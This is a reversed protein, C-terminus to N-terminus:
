SICVQLRVIQLSHASYSKLLPAQSMGAYAQFPKGETVLSPQTSQMLEPVNRTVSDSSYYEVRNRAAASDDVRRCRALRDERCRSRGNTDAKPNNEDLPLICVKWHRLRALVLGKKGSSGLSALPTRGYGGCVESVFNLYSRDHCTVKRYLIASRRIITICRLCPFVVQSRCVLTVSLQTSFFNRWCGWLTGIYVM